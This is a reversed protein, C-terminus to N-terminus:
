VAEQLVRPRLDLGALAREANSLDGIITRVPEPMIKILTPVVFIQDRKALQPKELLDIVVIRYKAPLYEEAIRKLNAFAQRSKPAQGAVYLRFEWKQRKCARRGKDRSGSLQKNMRMRRAM